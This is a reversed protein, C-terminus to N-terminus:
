KKGFCRDPQSQGNRRSINGPQNCCYLSRGSGYYVFWNFDPCTSKGTCAAVWRIGDRNRWNWFGEMGATKQPCFTWVLGHCDHWTGPCFYTSRKRCFILRNRGASLRRCSWSCQSHLQLIGVHFLGAVGEM